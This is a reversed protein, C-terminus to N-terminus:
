EMYIYKQYEIRYRDSTGPFRMEPNRDVVAELDVTSVIENDPDDVTGITNIDKIRQARIVVRYVDSRVTVLNSIKKFEEESIGAKTMVEHIKEFNDAPPYGRHINSALASSIGPLSTLVDESATNINIRSFTHPEPTLVVFDLKPTNTGDGKITFNFNSGSITSYDTTLAVGHNPKVRRLTESPSEKFDAGFQGYVLVNFKDNGERLRFPRSYGTSTSVDFTWNWTAPTETPSGVRRQTGDQDTATEWSSWPQPSDADEAELRRASVTIKDFYNDGDSPVDYTLNNQEGTFVDSLEGITAYPRDKIGWYRKGAALNEENVAIANSAGPDAPNMDQWPEAQNVPSVRARSVLPGSSAGYGKVNFENEDPDFPAYAIVNGAGDTLMLNTGTVTLATHIDSAALVEVPSDWTGDNGDYLAELAFLSDAIILYTYTPPSGTLGALPVDSSNNWTDLSVSTGGTVKGPLGDAEPQLLTGGFNLRWSPSGPDDTTDATISRKSINIIEIFKGAEIEIRDFYSKQDGPNAPDEEAATLELDLFGDPAITVEVTTPETAGIVDPPGGEIVYQIQGILNDPGTHAYIHVTYTGPDWPWKWTGIDGDSGSDTPDGPTWGSRVVNPDNNQRTVISDTVVENFQLGELGVYSNAPAPSSANSTTITPYNDRDAYDLINAAVRWINPADFGSLTYLQGTSILHNINVKPLWDGAWYWNTDYSWATARDKAASIASASVGAKLLEDLSTFPRDDDYPFEPDFEVPEDTGEEGIDTTGNADNDIGDDKLAANNNNDDGFAPGTVDEGPSTNGGGYRYNVIASATTSFVANLDLEYTSWGENQKGDSGTNVNIKGAEDQVLVAFRGIVTSTVSLPDERVYIWKSAPNGSELTVDSGAFITRWEDDYADFLAGAAKDDALDKILVSISYQLAASSIQRAQNFYIGQRGSKEEFRMLASFAVALVTILALVGLSLILAAGRRGNECSEDESM